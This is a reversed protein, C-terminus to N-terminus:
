SRVELSSVRNALSGAIEADATYEDRDTCRDGLAAKVRSAVEEVAVPYTTDVRITTALGLPVASQALKRLEPAYEPGLHGAARQGCRKLYREVIVDAAAHCWIECIRDVQAQVLYHTLTETPAFGFWADVVVANGPPFAGVLAWIAAYSARGMRRNYVRDGIGLESFLAEKVTDLSLVPLNLAVSLQRAVTSKGTAPVGNVLIATRM